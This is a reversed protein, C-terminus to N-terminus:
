GTVALNTATIVDVVLGGGTITLGESTSIGGVSIGGVFTSTAADTNTLSGGTITLGNGSALGYTSVGGAFTSTGAVNSTFATSVILQSTSALSSVTIATSSAYPIKARPTLGGIEFIFGVETTATAGIVLVDSTDVEVIALSDSTTAFPSTGSGSSTSDTGWVPVGGSIKLVTGSGGATLRTLTNDASAYLIDGTSYANQGTGGFTEGVPTGRWIGSNVTGLTSSSSVVLRSTSALDTVALMTTTAFTTTANRVYLSDITSSGTAALNASALTGTATINAVSTIDGSILLNGQVALTASPSTTSVGLYRLIALVSSALFDGSSITLGNASALGYASVGGAFTSTGAANVTLGTSVVLASTSAISSVTLVTATANTTTLNTITSSGTNALLSGTIVQNTTTAFTTTANRVYLGDITSSGSVALNGMTLTGTATVNAATVNGSVLLNGQVGLTAGPSTTAVGVSGGLTALYVSSTATFQTTSANAFQQLARWTNANNLNLSAVVDGTTPSITLSGDSNAVSSVAGSGSGVCSGNVRFCGGTLDIGNAFTSTASSSTVNLALAQLGGAFTSTGAGNVTIPTSAILATTSATGSVVLNTTTASIMTLNTITSTANNVLLSGYFVADGTVQLTSSAFLGGTANVFLLNSTASNQIRLLDATQSTAGRLLLPMASTSSAEITVVTGGVPTTTGFASSGTGSVAAALEAFVASSIQQRPSLTEFTSNDSSAEVQLYITTTANNFNFDLADPYSNAIDGINVNFVGQRVTTSVTGPASAPWVRGGAGVTASTWISFKFYYTTGSGGLLNGDEDLLRGQYSFIQPVGAASAVAGSFLFAIAVFVVALHISRARVKKYFFLFLRM